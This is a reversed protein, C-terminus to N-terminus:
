FRAVFADALLCLEANCVVVVQLTSSAPRLKPSGNRYPIKVAKGDAVVWAEDFRKLDSYLKVTFQNEEDLTSIATKPSVTETPTTWALLVPRAFKVNRVVLRASLKKGRTLDDFQERAVSPVTSWRKPAGAPVPGDVELAVEINPNCEYRRYTPTIAIDRLGFGDLAVLQRMRPTNFDEGFFYYTPLVESYPQVVAVTGKPTYALIDRRTRGEAGFRHYSIIAGTWAIAHVALAFAILAIRYGRNEAFWALWPLAAVVLLCTAPFLTSEYYKPGFMCLVSTAAYGYLLRVTVRSDPRTDDSLRTRGFTRMALEVLAFVAVLAVIKGIEEFPLRLVFMNPDLGRRLVKGIELYPSRAFGIITSALLACKTWSVWREHLSSALWWGAVLTVMAIGRSSTGAGYAAFIIVPLPLRWGCRLAAIVVSGFLAGYIYTATSPTYFWTVGAHPQAIWILASALALLLADGRRPTRGIAIVFLNIVLAVAVMPTVLVHFSPCRALLYGIADAESLHALLWGGDPHRGAWVWHLWADGQVPTWAAVIAHVIAMGVLFGVLWKM